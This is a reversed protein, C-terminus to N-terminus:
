QQCIPIFSLHGPLMFDCSISHYDPGRKVSRFDTLTCQYCKWKKGVSHLFLVAPPEAVKWIKKLASQLKMNGLCRELIGMQRYISGKKFIKSYDQPSWAGGLTKLNLVMLWITYFAAIYLDKWLCLLRKSKSKKCDKRRLLHIKIQNSPIKRPPLWPM